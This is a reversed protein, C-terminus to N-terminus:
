GDGENGRPTKVRPPRITPALDRRPRKSRTTWSAVWPLVIIFVVFEATFFIAGPTLKDFIAASDILDIM